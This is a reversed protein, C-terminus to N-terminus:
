SVAYHGAVGYVDGKAVLCFMAEANEWAITPKAIPVQKQRGSIGFRTQNAPM